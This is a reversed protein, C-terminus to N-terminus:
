AAEQNPFEDWTRGDLLRGAAKKGVRFIFAGWKPRENRSQAIIRNHGILYLMNEFSFFLRNNLGVLASLRKVVKRLFVIAAVGWYPAKKDPVTDRKPLINPRFHQGFVFAFNNSQILRAQACFFQGHSELRISVSHAKEQLLSFEKATRGQVLPRKVNFGIGVLAHESTQKQAFATDHNPAVTSRDSDDILVNCYKAPKGPEASASVPALRAWWSARVRAADPIQRTSNINKMTQFSNM